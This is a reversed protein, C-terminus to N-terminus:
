CTSYLGAVAQAPTACWNPTAPRPPPALNQEICDILVDLEVPKAVYPAGGIRGHHSTVETNTVAATLFVVPIDKTAPHRQLQAAVEGGDLGPMMVDLLILDPRFQRVTTCADAASNETRVVYRGTCDLNLRLIRTFREEDDVILIRTKNNM